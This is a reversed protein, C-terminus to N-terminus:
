CEVVVMGSFNSKASDDIEMDGIRHRPRVFVNSVALENLVSKSPGSHTYEQKNTM